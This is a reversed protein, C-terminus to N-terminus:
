QQDKLSSRIPPSQSITTAVPGPLEIREGPQILHSNDLTPNLLGVRHTFAPDLLLRGPSTQPNSTTSRKVLEARRLASERELTSIQAQLREMRYDAATLTPSLDSVQRRLDALRARYNRLTADDLVQPVEARRLLRPGDGKPRQAPIGGPTRDREVVVGDHAHDRIAKAAIGMPDGPDSPSSSAGAPVSPSIPSATRIREYAILRLFGIGSVLALVAAAPIWVRRDTAKRRPTEPVFRPAFVSTVAPKSLQVEPKRDLEMDGIAEAIMAANVQKQKTALCLTLANFCLTNIIRPIGKGARLILHLADPTFLPPGSYGALKLRHDIYAIADADPLPDLHCITSIRQRLQELSPAALKTALEPQGALVIQMLKTRSTEFNTLLRITELARESLNQAEDVVIVLGRGARAEEALVSKLQEHMEVADQGPTVGLDTLIYRVLERPTCQTDFLFVSRASERVTELFRFLLTTKGMGPPAVLAVFGRNSYFAYLLSALAEKHTDSLYLCRPDPTVEFPNDRFGFYESLM